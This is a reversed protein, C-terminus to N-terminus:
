ASTRKGWARQKPEPSENLPRYDYYDGYTSGAKGKVMNLVTGLVRGKAGVLIASASRVQETTTKGSRVVLVSGDVCASLVAADTVPLLPPTDILVYDFREELRDILSRMSDTGLLESPNPPIAGSALVWIGGTRQIAQELSVRGVLVTTLGVDNPVGLAAAVSPRRMDADLLCVKAGSQALMMALNITTTTKGEAATASTVVISKLPRDVNIFTLNTRLQRYAEARPDAEHLPDPERPGKRRQRDLGIRGLVPSSSAKELGESTRVSNDTIERVVAGLAGAVLGFMLGLVISRPYSPAVPRSGATAPTTITVNVPSTDASAGREIDEILRGLEKAATNAILAANAANADRVTLSILVTDVPSVAELRQALESPSLNLNLDRVVEETVLPSTAIKTYSTMRQTTFTNGQQLDAASDGGARVAVFMQATSAYVSTQAAAYLLGITGCVFGMVLILPLRRVLLRLYDAIEM